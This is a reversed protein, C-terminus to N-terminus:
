KVFTVIGDRVQLGKDSSSPRGVIDYSRSNEIASAAAVSILGTKINDVGSTPLTVGDWSSLVDLNAAKQIFGSYSQITNVRASVYTWVGDSLVISGIPYKTSATFMGRLGNVNTAPISAKSTVDEFFFATTGDAVHFVYPRGAVIPDTEEELCIATCDSLIGAIHYITVGDPVSFAYPLCITGWGSADTERIFLPVQRLSFDTACWWGERNDGTSTPDGYKIWSKNVAGAKSGQFGIKVEDGENVLIYPTQLTSWMASNDFTAIDLLGYPLTVSRATDNTTSNIIFAHQDTVCLHQTSAKCVLAYLGSALGSITQDIAMTQSENGTASLSWWANWCTLGAQTATRQDGGTYTGSITNWGSTTAFLPSSVADTLATYTLASAVISKLQAVREINGSPTKGTRVANVLEGVTAYGPLKLSMVLEADSMISDFSAYARITQMATQIRQEVDAASACELVAANLESNVEPRATNWQVFAAVRNKACEFADALADAENDYLRGVYFEDVQAVGAANRIRIHCITDQTVTFSAGQKAWDSVDQLQVRVNTELTGSGTSIRQYNPNNLCGAAAAYYTCNPKLKVDVNVCEASTATTSGGYCQLYAGGGFGGVPIVEFYPAALADGTGSTWGTTGFDFSGNALMNGGLYMTVDGVVIEDGADLTSSVATVENSTHEKGKLDVLVVRFKDGVGADYTVTYSGGAELCQVNEVTSWTSSNAKKRQVVMSQNYEGNPESWSLSISRSAKDYTGILDSPGGQRPLNPIKEHGAYALGSKQAAYMEGAPTLANNMYIKSCNAEGNWFFYREVWENNNLTNVIRSVVEKNQNLTSTSPNDRESTTTAVAFIGDNNWSSGWIWESIWVPRNVASVWNNVNTTFSGEKWYGHLDIIDCRWGRADISDFFQKLFGTGNWYDSGDWSSPSCLRMGTAMLGEWNALIADLDCPSDDSSNRPENNTKMHATWTAAGLESATPWNEKIHHTVSEVDPLMNTGMGWSYTSTVNLASCATNDGSAAALQHKGADYWQFIRYSTIHQDLVAPLTAFELDEKDAIFCRSYGRGSARTSFTVMYGRKLKFSRIQNNLKADSLTNMFGGTNELGFSNVATGGFNQESYVTLPKISSAYPFIIAGQAYMRVQCNSGNAAQVGNIYVRGKLWSAIVKSPKINQIIVVSHDTDTINVSGGDAFPTTSTVVYDVADSVTVASTVQEVTTTTNAALALAPVLAVVALILRNLLIKM